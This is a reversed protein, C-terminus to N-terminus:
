QFLAEWTGVWWLESLSKGKKKLTLNLSAEMPQHTYDQDWPLGACSFSLFKNKTEKWVDIYLYVNISILALLFYHLFFMLVLRRLDTCMLIMYNQQSKYVRFHVDTHEEMNDSTLVILGLPRIGGHVSAGAERCHKEVDLLWSPDFPVAIDISTLEFDIEVDVQKLLVVHRIILM